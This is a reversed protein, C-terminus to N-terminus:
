LFILTVPLQLFPPRQKAVNNSSTIHCILSISLSNSSRALLRGSLVSFTGGAKKTALPLIHSSLSSLVTGCLPALVQQSWFFVDRMRLGELYCIIGFNLFPKQVSILDLAANPFRDLSLAMPMVTFGETLIKSLNLITGQVARWVVLIRPFKFTYDWPRERPASLVRTGLSHGLAGQLVM